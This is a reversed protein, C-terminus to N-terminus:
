SHTLRIQLFSQPWQFVCVRRNSILFFLLNASSFLVYVFSISFRPIQARMSFKIQMKKIWNVQLINGHFDYKEVIIAHRVLACPRFPFREFKQRDRLLTSEIKRVVRGNAKLSKIHVLSLRQYRSEFLTLTLPRDDEYWLSMCVQRIFFPMASFLWIPKKMLIITKWM